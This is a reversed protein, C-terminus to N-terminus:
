SAPRPSGAVEDDLVQMTKDVIEVVVRRAVALNVSNVDSLDSFM